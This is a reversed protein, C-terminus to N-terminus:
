CGKTFLAPLASAYFVYRFHGEDLTLSASEVVISEDDLCITRTGAGLGHDDHNRWWRRFELVFVAVPRSYDLPLHAPWTAAGADHPAFRLLLTALAVRIVEIM